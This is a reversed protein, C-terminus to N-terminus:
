SKKYSRILLLPSAQACLSLCVGLWISEAEEKVKMGQFPTASLILFPPREAVRGAGTGPAPLVPLYYLLPCEACCCSFDEELRLRRYKNGYDGKAIVWTMGSMCIDLFVVCCFYVLGGSM